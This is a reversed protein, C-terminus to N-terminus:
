YKEDNSKMTTIENYVYNDKNENIEVFNEINEIELNLNTSKIRLVIDYNGVEGIM